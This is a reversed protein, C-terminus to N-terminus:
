RMGELYSKSSYQLNVLQVGLVRSKFCRPQKRSLILIRFIALLLFLISPVLSLISQEFLLTFDFEELCVGFSSSFTSDCDTSKVSQKSQSLVM